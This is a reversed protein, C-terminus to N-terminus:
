ENNINNENDDNENSINDNICMIMILIWYYVCVNDCMLIMENININM